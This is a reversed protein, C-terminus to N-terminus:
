QAEGAEAVLKGACNKLVFSFFRHLEREDWRWDTARQLGESVWKGYDMLMEERAKVLQKRLSEVDIPPGGEKMGPKMALIRTGAMVKDIRKLVEYWSQLASLEYLFYGLNRKTKNDMGAQQFCHFAAAFREWGKFMIGM